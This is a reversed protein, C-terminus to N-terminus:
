GGAGAAHWCMTPQTLAHTQWRALFVRACCRCLCLLRPPNVAAWSHPAAVCVEADGECGGPDQGAAADADEVDRDSSTRADPGAAATAARPKKRLLNSVYAARHARRVQAPRALVDNITPAAHQLNPHQLHQCSCSYM